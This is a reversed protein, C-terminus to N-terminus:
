LVIEAGVAIHDSACVGKRPIGPQLTETRHTRLLATVQPVQDMSEQEQEQGQVSKTPPFVFVYDACFCHLFLDM